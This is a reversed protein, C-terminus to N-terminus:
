SLFRVFSPHTLSPLTIRTRRNNLEPTDEACLPAVGPVREPRQCLRTEPNVEVTLGLTRQWGTFPKNLERELRNKERTAARKAETQGRRPM